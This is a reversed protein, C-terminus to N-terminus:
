GLSIERLAATAALFRAAFKARSFLRSTGGGFVGPVMIPFRGMGHRVMQCVALMGDHAYVNIRVVADRPTLRGPEYEIQMNEPLEEEAWEALARISQVELMNLQSVSEKAAIIRFKPRRPGSIRPPVVKASSGYAEVKENEQM